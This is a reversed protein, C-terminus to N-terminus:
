GDLHTEVLDDRRIQSLVLGRRTAGTSLAAAALLVLLLHLALLVLAYLLLLLRQRSL